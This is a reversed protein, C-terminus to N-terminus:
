KTQEKAAGFDITGLAAGPIWEYWGGPDRGILATTKWEFDQQSGSNLLVSVAIRGPAIANTNGDYLGQHLEIKRIDSTNVDVTSGTKTLPLTNGGELRLDSLTTRRGGVETIVAALSSKVAVATPIMSPFKIEKVSGDGLWNSFAAKGFDHLDETGAIMLEHPGPRAFNHKLNQSTIAQLQESNKLRVLVESYYHWAYDFGVEDEREPSRITAGTAAISEILSMPVILTHYTQKRSELVERRIFDHEERPREADTLVVFSTIEQVSFGWSPLKLDTESTLEANHIEHTVGDTTIITLNLTPAPPPTPDATPVEPKAVAATPPRTVVPSQETGSSRYWVVGAIVALAFGVVALRPLNARAKSRPRKTGDVLLSQAAAVHIGRAKQQEAFLRNLEANFSLAESQSNCRVTVPISMKKSDTLWTGEEVSEVVSPHSEDFARLAAKIIAVAVDATPADLYFVLKAETPM